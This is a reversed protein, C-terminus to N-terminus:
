NKRRRSRLYEAFRLVEAQDEQTLSATARAVMAIAENDKKKPGAGTLDEVSCKFLRALRTLELADVGRQGNEMQTVATRPVGVYSAVEEQSYGCYERMERLRNGLAEREAKDTM